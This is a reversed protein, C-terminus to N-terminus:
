CHHIWVDQKHPPSWDIFRASQHDIQQSWSIHYLTWNMLKMKNQTNHEKCIWSGFDLRLRNVEGNDGFYGNEFYKFWRSLECHFFILSDKFYDFHNGILLFTLPFTM